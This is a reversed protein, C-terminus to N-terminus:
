RLGKSRPCDCRITGGVGPRADGLPPSLRSQENPSVRRRGSRALPRAAGDRLNLTACVPEVLTSVVVTPLSRSGCRSSRGGEARSATCTLEAARRRHGACLGPVREAGLRLWRVGRAAAAAGSAVAWPAPDPKGASGRGRFRRRRPVFAIGLKGSRAPGARRAATVGFRGGRRCAGARSRRHARTSTTPLRASPPTNATSPTLKIAPQREPHETRTTPESVERPDAVPSSEGGGRGGRRHRDHSLRAGAAQVGMCFSAQARSTQRSGTSTHPTQAIRREQGVRRRPAHIRSDVAARCDTDCCDCDASVAPQKDGNAESLESWRASQAYAIV